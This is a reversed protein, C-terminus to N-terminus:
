ASIPVHLAQTDLLLGWRWASVGIMVLYLLLAAALWFPNASRFQAWLSAPDTQRFLLWLLVASVAIKLVLGLPSARKESGATSSSARTM